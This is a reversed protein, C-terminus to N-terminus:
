GEKKRLIFSIALLIMSFVLVGLGILSIYESFDLIQLINQPLIGIMFVFPLMLVAFPKYNKLGFVRTISLSALYYYISMTTFSAFIWFIMFFIDFREAFAGPFVIYKALQLTPYLSRGTADAGYVGIAVFTLTVFMLLPMLFGFLSYKLVNSKNRAFPFVFLLIEYGLFVPLLDLTGRLYPNVGKEFLPYLNEINFNKFSLIILLGLAGIVMPEFLECIKSITLIGKLVMYLVTFAFLIMIIELPTQRLIFGKIVDAFNRLVTGSVGLLYIFLGVGAAKGPLPTIIKSSYEIITDKPFRNALLAILVLISSSVIGAILIVFVGDTGAAESAIRPLSLVTVGTIASSILFTIQINSIGDLRQKM